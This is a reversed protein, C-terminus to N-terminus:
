KPGRYLYAQGPKGCFVGCQVVQTGDTLDTEEDPTTFPYDNRNPVQTIEGGPAVIAYRSISGDSWYRGYMTTRETMILNAKRKRYNPFCKLILAWETPHSSKTIEQCEYM